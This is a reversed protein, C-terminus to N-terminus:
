QGVAGLRRSSYSRHAEDAARLLVLLEELEEPTGHTECNKISRYTLFGGTILNMDQWDLDGVKPNEQYFKTGMRMFLARTVTFTSRQKKDITQIKELEDKLGRLREAWWLIFVWAKTIREQEQKTHKESM